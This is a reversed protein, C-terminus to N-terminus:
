RLFFFQIRSWPLYVWGSSLSCKIEYGYKVRNSAQGHSIQTSSWNSGACLAIELQYCNMETYIYRYKVERMIGLCQERNETGEQTLHYDVELSRIKECLFAWWALNELVIGRHECTSKLLRFSKIQSYVWFCQFISNSNHAFAFGTTTKRCELKWHLFRTLNQMWCQLCFCAFYLLKDM